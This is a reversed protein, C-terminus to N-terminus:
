TLTSGLCLLFISKFIKKSFLNEMKVLAHVSTKIISKDSSSLKGLANVHKLTIYRTFIEQNTGGVAIEFCVSTIFVRVNQIEEERQRELSIHYNAACAWGQRERECLSCIVPDTFM